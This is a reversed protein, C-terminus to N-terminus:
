GGYRIGNQLFDDTKCNLLHAGRRGLKDKQYQAALASSLLCQFGILVVGNDIRAIGAALAGVGPEDIHIAAPERVEQEALEVFDVGVVIGKHMQKVFFLLQQGLGILWGAAAPPLRRVQEYLFIDIVLM